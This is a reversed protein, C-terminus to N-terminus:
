EGMFGTTNEDDLVYFKGAYNRYGELAGKTGKPVARYLENIEEVPVHQFLMSAIPQGGNEKAWADRTERYWDVQEPELPAYGFGLGSHSDMCYLLLAPTDGQAPYIPVVHNNYGPVGAPSEEAYCLPYRQYIRTQEEMPIPADHDHNGYTFTFPIGREDLIGLLEKLTQEVAAYTREYSGLQLKLGYGRIQDGTLVVFDPRELDLAANLLEKTRPRIGESDQVDSIQMLKFTGDAKFRLLPKDEM